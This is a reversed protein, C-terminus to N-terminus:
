LTRLLRFGVDNSGFFTNRTARVASRLHPADEFWSGGRCVRRPSDSSGNLPDIGGQLEKVYGDQVLEGVNGYIDYLGNPNPKKMGVKHTRDESNQGYWAYDELDAFRDGYSFMMETGARAFYEWEAETPLRYCGTSSNPTGDCGIIGFSDNLKKIFKQVEEWSVYEVPHNPCMGNIHDDCDEANQFYSPNEGMVRVWQSQTVETEMVEFPRTIEVQQQDEDQHRGWEDEPSGMLFNGPEIRQFPISLMWRRLEEIELVQDPNQAESESNASNDNYTVDHEEESTSDEEGFVIFPTILLTGIIVAIRFRFHFSICKTLFSFTIGFFHIIYYLM